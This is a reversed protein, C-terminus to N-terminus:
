KKAPPAPAAPADTNYIDAIVKWEGGATKKWVEVFKGKEVVPKGKADNSTFEYTGMNYAMDGSASVETARNVWQLTFGPIQMMESWAKQIAERGSVMPMNAPLLTGDEAYYSATAAADKAQVAKLWAADTERLKAAEAATDVKPEPPAQQCGALMVAVAAACVMWAGTKM